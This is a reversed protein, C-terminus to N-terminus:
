QRAISLKIKKNKIKESNAISLIENCKYAPVAVLSYHDSVFIKGVESANLRCKVALFGLIDAKSIKEKRGASFFLSETDKVFQREIGINLLYDKDFHIFEPIRETPGTIVFVSGTKDIRATRGNRHTYVEKSIPLHYHIIHKIDNIDLGRSGLDTTILIKFTGNTFMAIAKERDIQELGGHYIGVPYKKSKLFTFIRDVADRYNVFIITRENSLNSLLADLTDLKDKGDSKVQNVEIRINIDSQPLYDIREFDGNIFEPLEPLATASTLIRRSLNPMRKVIKEMENIFGLELSKDFEDLVLIRTDILTLNKRKCHDLLRGPTSVIIDPTVSLSKTEDEFNHGGYCCITKYDSAVDRIISYIQIALERSPSIVIAQIRGSAPKMNKLLPITFAITKGSGTPSLLMIRPSSYREAVKLQMESLDTIGLRNSINKIIASEKM